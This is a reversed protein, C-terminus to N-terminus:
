MVSCSRARNLEVADTESKSRRYEEAGQGSGFDASDGIGRKRNAAAAKSAPRSYDGGGDGGGGDSTAPSSGILRDWSRTRKPDLLERSRIAQVAELAARESPSDVLRYAFINGSQCAVLVSGDSRAEVARVEHHADLEGAPACEPVRYARVRRGRSFLMLSDALAFCRFQFGAPAARRLPLGAAVSYLYNDADVCYEGSRSFSLRDPDTGAPLLNPALCRLTLTEVDIIMVSQTFRRQDPSRVSDLAEEEETYVVVVDSGGEDSGALCPQVALIRRVLGFASLMSPGILRTQGTGTNWTFLCPEIYYARACDLDRATLCVILRDNGTLFPRGLLHPISASEGCAEPRVAGDGLALRTIGFPQKFAVEAQDVIYVDSSHRCPLLHGPVNGFEALIRRESLSWVINTTNPNRQVVSAVAYDGCSSIACDVVVGEHSYLDTLYGTDLDVVGMEDSNDCCAVARPRRRASRVARIPATLSDVATGDTFAGQLSWLHIERSHEIFGVVLSRTQDVLLRTLIGTPAHLMVLPRGQEVEWVLVDRFISTIVVRDGFAFDAESFNIREYNANPMKFEAPIEPPRRIHAVIADRGFEYVLVNKEARVLLLQEAQSVRMDQLRDDGLSNDFMIKFSMEIAGKADMYLIVVKQEGECMIFARSGDRTFMLRKPVALLDVVSTQVGNGIEFVLVQEGNNTFIFREDPTIDCLAARRDPKFVHIPQCTALDAIIVSSMRSAVICAVLRRSVRVKTIRFMSKEEFPMTDIWNLPLIHGVFSGDSCLHVKLHSRKRDDVMVAYREDASLHLEGSSTRAEGLMTGRELDYKYLSVDDKLKVYLTATESSLHMSQLNSPCEVTSQLASGPLKAYSYCPVFINHQCGRVDAQRVLNKINKYEHSYLVLSGSLEAALNNLNDGLIDFAKRITEEVLSVETNSPVLQFDRLTEELGLAASKYYLWDYSFLVLNNLEPVRDSLFLHRPLQRFKRENYFSGQQGGGSTVSGGTEGEISYMLKQTPMLRDASSVDDASSVTSVPKSVGHWTGLFYDAMTFHLSKRLDDSSLYRAAVASEVDGNAWYNVFYGDFSAEHILLRVEQKMLLWVSSPFQRVGDEIPVLMEDLVADDLSLLDKVEIDTLGGGSLSVYAFAHSVAIRGFKAELRDFEADLLDALGSSAPLDAPDDGSALRALRDCLLSAHFMSELGALRQEAWRWQEATLRRSREALYHRAFERYADATQPGIHLVRLHPGALSLVSGGAEDLATLVLKVNSPPGRPAPVLSQPPLRDGADDVLREAGAILLVVPGAGSLRDVLEQLNRPPPATQEASNAGAGTAVVGGTDLRCCTRIQNFLSATLDSLRREFMVVRPILVGVPSECLRQQIEIFAQAIAPMKGTNQGGLLLYTYNQRASFDVCYEVVAEITAEQRLSFPALLRCHELSTWADDFVRVVESDAHMQKGALRSEVATKAAEIFAECFDGLYEEHLRKDIGDPFRWLVSFQRDVSAYTTLRDNLEQLLDALSKDILFRDNEEDLEVDTYLDAKPENLYNKLDIIDREFVIPRFQTLDSHSLLHSIGADLEFTLIEFATQDDMTGERLCIGVGIKFLNALLRATFKWEALASAKAEPDEGVIDPLQRSAPLLVHETDGDPCEANEDRRYWSDLIHYQATLPNRHARLTARILEFARSPLRRPLLPLGFKQGLLIVPVSDHSAFAFKRKIDHFLDWYDLEDYNVKELGLKIDVGRFQLGYTNRFYEYLRPYAENRLVEREKEFDSFASIICFTISRPSVTPLSSLPLRGSCLQVFGQEM